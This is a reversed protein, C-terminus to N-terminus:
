VVAITAHTYQAHSVKNTRKVLHNNPTIVTSTCYPAPSCFHLHYILDCHFPYISNISNLYQTVIVFYQIILLKGCVTVFKLGCIFYKCSLM